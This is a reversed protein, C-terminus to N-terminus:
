PSTRLTANLHAYRTMATQHPIRQARFIRVCKEALRTRKNRDTIGSMARQIRSVEGERSYKRRKHLERTCLPQSTQLLRKRASSCSSTNATSSVDIRVTECCSHEGERHHVRRSVTNTTQRTANNGCSMLLYNGGM